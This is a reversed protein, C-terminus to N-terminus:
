PQDHESHSEEGCNPVEREQRGEKGGDTCTELYTWSARELNQDDSRSIFICGVQAGALSGSDAPLLAKMAYSENYADNELTDHAPYNGVGSQASGM